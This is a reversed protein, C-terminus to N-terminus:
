LVVREVSELTSGSYVLTDTHQYVITNGTIDYQTLVVSTLVDGTYNLVEKKYLVSGLMQNVQTLVGNVNYILDETFTYFNKIGAEFDSLNVANVPTGAQIVTGTNPILTISGDVNEQVDFTRPKEIIRDKWDVLPNYAM